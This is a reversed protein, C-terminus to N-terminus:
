HGAGPSHTLEKDLGLPSLHPMDLQSHCSKLASEDGFLLISSLDARRASPRFSSPLGGLCIVTRLFGGRPHWRFLNEEGSILRSMKGLVENLVGSFGGKFAQFHVLLLTM